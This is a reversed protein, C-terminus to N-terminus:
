PADLCRRVLEVLKRPHYPKQLFCAGENQLFEEGVVEPSYGSTYVIRLSPKDALLRQGLERGTVGDPMVMDTLVLDIRARSEGWLELAQVGSAAAVVRYGSRELISTVLTRLAPEDEVVMITEQGARTPLAPAATPTSEPKERSAPLFIQFVTGKHLESAVTIWGHHQKVIGYVTALGLGTGKGVDKTTFFPEFIHSLHEPAIGSGTDSVSLTVYAGPRADPHPLTQGAVVEALGTNIILQGGRPMADRSNVALNMLVQELMGQDAHVAPLQPTFHVHLSVDEGLLRQLMKSLNSVVENLDLHRPQLLQKRSFTLLQRTLNAAREAAQTIQQLSTQQGATLSGMTSLLLAHGQIVTLINNFDHAVGGALQGVSEMKQAQRLQGELQRRETIDRANVVVAPQDGEVSLRQGIAEFVRWSADARRFRFEVITPANGGHIARGLAQRVAEVDDPHIFDFASQGALDEPRYNLIRQATHSVYAFRAQGDVITIVDSSNEILSRFHEESRQLAQEVRKRETIDQVTGLLKLPRQAADLVCEARESVYRITGDPRVIRHEIRYPEATERTQRAAASVRERDDAHVAALFAEPTPTFVTPDRGFIRYTESSWELRGSALELEWSGLHSIRQAELLTAENRRLAEEFQRRETIDRLFGTLLPEGEIPVRTISMEIPFATGDRRRATLEVRRGFLESQGTELFRQLGEHFRPRLTEPLVLAALDKGLVQARTHGFTKEAARNWEFVRGEHDITVIADLASELIASKRAQGEVQAQEALRRDTVNEFLVGVQRDALPFARLLYDADGVRPDQFHFYGITLPQGSQVVELLQDPIATGALTPFAELLRQGVVQENAIGTLRTAAPNALVLRFSTTDQEQELHWVYIGEQVQQLLDTALRQRAEPAREPARTAGTSRARAGVVRRRQDMRRMIMRGLQRLAAVQHPALDRPRSDMVCLTGLAHGAPTILPVGAYFRIHPAGTVLPNDHFRPDQTADRVILPESGLIAHACFAVDRPTETLALGQRSKFWQRDRDVLSILAIPSETIQAALATLDDLEAEPPTDLVEYQWLVELRRAENPPTSAKM